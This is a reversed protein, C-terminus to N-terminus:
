WGRMWMPKPERSPGAFYPIWQEPNQLCKLAYERKPARKMKKIHGMGDKSYFSGNKFMYDEVSAM